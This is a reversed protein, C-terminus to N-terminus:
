SSLAPVDTGTHTLWLHPSVHPDLLIQVVAKTKKHLNIRQKKHEVKKDLIFIM